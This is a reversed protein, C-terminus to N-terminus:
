RGKAHIGYSPCPSPGPMHARGPPLLRRNGPDVGSTTGGTRKDPPGAVDDAAKSATTHTVLLHYRPNGRIAGPNREWAKSHTKPEGMQLAKTPPGPPLTRQASAPLKRDSHGFGKM